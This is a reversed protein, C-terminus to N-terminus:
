DVGMQVSRIEELLNAFQDRISAPPAATARDAAVNWLSTSLIGHTARYDLDPSDRLPVLYRDDVIGHATLFPEFDRILNFGLPRVAHELRQNFAHHMATRAALSDAGIEEALPAERGAQWVPPFLGAIWHSARSSAPVLEALFAAYAAIRPEAFALLATLDHHRAQVDSQGFKWITPMTQPPLLSQKPTKLLADLGEFPAMALPCIWREGASAGRRYLGASHDGLILVPVGGMARLRDIRGGNAALTAISRVHTGTWATVLATLINRIYLHNRAPLKRLRDIAALDLGTRFIRGEAFGYRLFHLTGADDDDLSAELDAFCGRYVDGSFGTRRLAAVIEALTVPELWRTVQEEDANQKM